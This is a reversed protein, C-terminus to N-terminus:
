TFKHEVSGEPDLVAYVQYLQGISYRLIIERFRSATTLAM